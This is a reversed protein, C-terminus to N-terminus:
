PRPQGRWALAVLPAVLLFQLATYATEILVYEPVSAMPHKAAM